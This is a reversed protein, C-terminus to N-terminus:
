NRELKPDLGSFLGHPDIDEFGYKLIDASDLKEGREISDTAKDLLTSVESLSPETYVIQSELSKHHLVKKIVLPPIGAERLRQGAAHRHGHPTTGNPKSPILGIREVAREHADAYDTPAYPSGSKAVFAFPHTSGKEQSISARQLLYINWLQWFLKGTWMPFWHVHFFMGSSDDILPEKWGAHMNKSSPYENRPKLQWKGRLYAARNCRIPKGNANLWDFPALGERPHFIRVWATGPREPDEVVDSVYLHFPESTRLGGFHTLLTILVDRLNLREHVHPSGEKGPVIFGDFLLPLIQDEPFHKTSGHDVKPTRHLVTDRVRAATQSAEEKSWTHGLFARSHRHHYSAWNMMQEHTTALRWPSLPKTNLEEQMWDSFNALHGQIGKINKGSKGIWYLGSPDSGDEGITGTYLRQVFTNFLEKPEEFVDKNATMYELLLSVAQAAKQKWIQSKTSNEILYDVFPKLPGDETLIVPIEYEIGTNDKVVKARVTVHIM